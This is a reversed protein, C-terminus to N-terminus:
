KRILYKPVDAFYVPLDYSGPGPLPFVFNKKNEQNRVSSGFGWRPGKFSKNRL